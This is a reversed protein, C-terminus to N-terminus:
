VFSHFLDRVSSIAYHSIDGQLRGVLQVRRKNSFFSSCIMLEESSGNSLAIDMVQVDEKM